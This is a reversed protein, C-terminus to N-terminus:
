EAVSGFLTTKKANTIKVKVFDGAEAHEAVFNVMKGSDTRGCYEKEDRRSLGEVLVTETRGVYALNSEYTIDGQLAVLEMIRQQKVERSIQDPYGAAATGKRPSYVFTYAADFRVERMISLTERYDEDTEGPFGVIVDTSLFIGPIEERVKRIIELYRERTYRRNMRRLIETSGSQMPLHLSKCINDHEKMVKILEDSIDKPHSTMFRIREMGTEEAVRKLLTPFDCDLGKGYSNVNQGLLMVEKYGQTRLEKIEALINEPTRSRERGRVYPVICYTCFNDCGQMINVYSLPPANRRTPIDEVINMDEEVMLVREHEVIISYLMEPLRHMNYTGFVLDVYPFSRMLKKGADDQQMMCGCVGIIMDPDEKKRHKFVGVNSYLKSEAHERVCCTNFLVLSASEADVAPEFGLETLLGALKESDHANMQCGYTEIHYTM